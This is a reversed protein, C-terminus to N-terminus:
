CVGVGLGLADWGAGAASVVCFGVRGDGPGCELSGDENQSEMLAVMAQIPRNSGTMWVM